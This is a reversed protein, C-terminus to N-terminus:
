KKDIDFNNKDLYSQLLLCAASMDLSKVREKRSLGLEDSLIREAQKSSLREDFLEVEIKSKEELAKAFQFVVKGMSSEEGKLSLPNGVLIKLLEKMKPQLAKIVNEVAKKGGEVQIYPLAITQREDSLAIGIRKMGFDIFAIRGKIKM